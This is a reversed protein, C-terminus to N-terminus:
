LCLMVFLTASAVDSSSCPHSYSPMFIGYTEEHFFASDEKREMLLM